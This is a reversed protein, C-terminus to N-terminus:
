RIMQLSEKMIKKYYFHILLYAPIGFVLIFIFLWTTQEKKKGITKYYRSVSILTLILLVYFIVLFAIQSIQYALVISPTKGIVQPAFLAVAFLVIYVLYNILAYKNYKKFDAYYKDAKNYTTNEYFGQVKLNEKTIGLTDLRDLAGYRLADSYDYQKYNKVIEKLQNISRADLLAEEEATLTYEIKEEEVVEEKKKKGFIKQLFLRVPDLDILGQDTTARYTLYVGIPLTIFTSLWSATFASITGDEASNKAFIGIFHFTLFLVVGVVIPLGLGGKRIIAGLPAGVFFLVICSFGLVYKEHIAIEFKNLRKVDVAHIKKRRDISTLSNGINSKLSQLIAVKDTLNYNDLLVEQITDIVPLKFDKIPSFNAKRIFTEGFETRSKDYKVALGTLSSDLEQVNLMQYSNDIGKKDLDVGGNLTGLDINLTYTEFYSKAFPERKQKKYDSQKVESYYNGDTLKLSLIPSDLSSILEGEKAKIVTYNGIRGPEKQHIIVDTLYQDRDGYKNAVRINIDDGIANFQGSRIIMAPKLKGINNRLNRFEFQSAPIVYNAFLFSTIGLFVIFVILSKMARQLSIGTSKMAAFEYNEAFNGFTMISTLLVSLPLVLTVLSPTVFLLFKLIVSFDLDRGALEQIYLWVSQLVFIFM